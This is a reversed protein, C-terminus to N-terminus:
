TKKDKIPSNERLKMNEQRLQAIEDQLRSLLEADAAIRLASFQKIDVAGTVPLSETDSFEDVNDETKPEEEESIANFDDEDGWNDDNNDNTDNNQNEEFTGTGFDKDDGWDEDDNEEEQQTPPERDGFDQDDGWDEEDDDVNDNNSKSNKETMNEDKMSSGNEEFGFDDDDGWDDDDEVQKNNNDEFDDSRLSGVHSGAIASDSLACDISEHDKCDHKVVQSLTIMEKDLYKSVPEIAGNKSMKAFDRESIAEKRITSERDVFDRKVVQSSKMVEEEEEGEELLKSLPKIVGNKLIKAFDRESIEDKGIQKASAFVECLTNTRDIATLVNQLIKDSHNLYQLALSKAVSLRYETTM